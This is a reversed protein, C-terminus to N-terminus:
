ARKSREREDWFRRRHQEAGRLQGHAVVVAVKKRQQPLTIAAFHNTCIQPAKVPRTQRGTKGAPRVPRALQLRLGHQIEVEFCHVAGHIRQRRITADVHQSM